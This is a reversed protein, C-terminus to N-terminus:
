LERMLAGYNDWIGMKHRGVFGRWELALLITINNGRKGKLVLQKEHLFNKMILKPFNWSIDGLTPLREIELAVKDDELQLLVFHVSLEQGQM